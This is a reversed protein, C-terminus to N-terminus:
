AVSCRDCGLSSTISRTRWELSMIDLERVRNALALPLSLLIRLAEWAILNGVIGSIPALSGGSKTRVKLPNMGAREHDRETTSRVCRWCVTKGPLVSTGPIGLNGGYAGGVIHPIDLRHAADAVRDSVMMLNPEDACSIVLDARGFIREFDSRTDVFDPFVHLSVDPNILRIRDSAVEVKSRGVDHTTYLIQRNLNSTEVLDPDVIRLNNVGATALSQVVWSGAGGLGIVCVHSNALSLQMERASLPLHDFSAIFEEFLREQRVYRNNPLVESEIARDLLSESKLVNLVDFIDEQFVDLSAGLEACIDGVTRSGDLLPILKSVFPEVQFEKVRLDATCFFQIQDEYSFAIVSDRISPRWHLDM